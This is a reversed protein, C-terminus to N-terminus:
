EKIIPQELCRLMRELTERLEEISEGGVRLGDTHGRITDDDDYYVEEITYWTEDETSRNVVRHNWHGFESM